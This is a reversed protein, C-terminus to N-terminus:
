KFFKRNDEGVFYYQSNKKFQFVFYKEILVYGFEDKKGTDISFMYNKVYEGDYLDTLKVNKDFMRLVGEKSKNKFIIFDEFTHKFEESNGFKISDYKIDLVMKKQSLDLLGQKKNKELILFRKGDFLINDYATKIIIDELYGSSLLLYKTNSKEVTLPFYKQKISVELNNNFFKNISEFKADSEPLSYIEMQQNADRDTYLEDKSRKDTKYIKWDDDFLHMKDNITGYFYYKTYEPKKIKEKGDMVEYRHFFRISDYDPSILWRGEKQKYIGFKNNMKIKLVREFSLNEYEQINDLITIHKDVLSYHDTEKVVFIYKERNENDSCEEIEAYNNPMIEKGYFDIFGFKKNLRVKLMDKVPSIEVSDYKPAIIIRGTQDAYGWLHKDRFPIRIPNQSFFSLSYFLVILHLIKSRM